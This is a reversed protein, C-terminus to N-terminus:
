FRMLMINIRLNQTTGNTENLFIDFSTATINRIVPTEVDNDDDATGLSTLSIMPVFNTSGQDAFNVTITSSSGSNSKSASTIDGGITTSTGSALDGILVHGATIKTVSGDAKLFQTATGGSKVYGAATITASTNVSTVSTNGLQIKNSANVLAGNGFASANTLASSSVDAVYGVITNNSGTTNSGMAGFGIAINNSGQSNNYLTEGGIATNKNGNDNGQMAEQGLAVNQYGTSNYVMALYGFAANHHGSSNSELAQLGVATNSSGSSNGSMAQRGIAINENSTTNSNLAQYGIAINDDGTTINALAGVGIGINREATTLTGTTQHGILLSNSFNTGGVKADSLGDLSSVGFISWSGQYVYMGATGDTQFVLLGTAPSSIAARQAATMRPILLGRTTSTIDLQASANPTATGIAVQASANVTAFLLIILLSHQFLKM